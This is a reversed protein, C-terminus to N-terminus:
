VGGKPAEQKGPVKFLNYLYTGPEPKILSAKDMIKKIRRKFVNKDPFYNFNMQLFYLASVYDPELELAKLAEQRALQMHNFRLYIEAKLLKIVHDKPAYQEAKALPAIIEEHIAAYTLKKQLLLRYLESELRYAAIYYRNLRQAKKLNDLALYFSDLNTAEKYYNYLLEAKKYYVSADLPNLYGAKRLLNFRAMISINKQTQAKEVLRQSLYPFLYGVLLTVVLLVICYTKLSISFSQYTLRNEFLNKLLFIFIFFFFIDFIFDHLFAQFLLYLILLKSLNFLSSSFIKKILVGSLLLLFILGVIGTETLLKLYDNHPKRPRKFYNAPGRKQKFNYKISVEKFNSPGVGGILHDKFITLSMKWIDIRNAAYPDKKISFIFMEKIPNPLIFTLLTFTIILPILKKNKSLVMLLAFFVVGIFAAKSQSVFVGAINLILLGLYKWNLKKLLRTAGAVWSAVWGASFLLSPSFTQKKPLGKGPKLLFYYFIILVGIGSAIGQLIPNGFFYDKKDIVSVSYNIVNFLSISSIIYALLHFYKDESSKDFFLLIFYLSILFVDSVLLISQYRYLSFFISFILVLNFVVLSYSFLSLSINKMFCINRFSFIVILLAFILYYFHFLSDKWPFFLIWSLIILFEVKPNLLSLRHIVRSLKM